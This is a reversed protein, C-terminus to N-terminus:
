HLTLLTFTPATLQIQFEGPLLAEPNIYPLKDKHCQSLQFSMNMMLQVIGSALSEANCLSGFSICVCCCSANVTRKQDWVDYLAAESVRQKSQGAIISKIYFQSSFCIKGHKLINKWFIKDYHCSFSSLCIPELLDKNLLFCVGFCLGAWPHLKAFCKFFYYCLSRSETFHM